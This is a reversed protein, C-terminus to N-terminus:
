RQYDVDDEGGVNDSPDQYPILSQRLGYSKAQGRELVIYYGEARLEQISRRISAYPCGFIRTLTSVDLGGCSILSLLRENRTKDRVDTM